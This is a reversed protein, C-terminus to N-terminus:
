FLLFFTLLIFWSTKFLAEPNDLLCIEIFGKVLKVDLFSTFTYGILDAPVM